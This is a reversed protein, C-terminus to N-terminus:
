PTGLDEVLDESESYHVHNRLDSLKHNFLGRTLNRLFIGPVQVSPRLKDFQTDSEDVLDGEFLEAVSNGGNSVRTIFIGEM